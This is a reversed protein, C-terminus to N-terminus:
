LSPSHFSDWYNGASTAEGRGHIADAGSNALLKKLDLNEATIESITAQLRQMKERLRDERQQSRDRGPKPPMLAERAGQQAAQQWGYFQAPSIQHRRCVEAGTTNPQRAEELIQLKQQASITRKM